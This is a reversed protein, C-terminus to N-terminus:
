QENIADGEPITDFQAAPLTQLDEPWHFGHSVIWTTFLIRHRMGGRVVFVKADEVTNGERRVLKNEFDLAPDGTMYYAAHVKQLTVGNVLLITAAAIALLVKRDIRPLLNCFALLLPFAFPIFYRGQVGPVHGAGHQM